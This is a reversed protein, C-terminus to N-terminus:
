APAEAAPTCVVGHLIRMAYTGLPFVVDRVGSRWTALAVRYARHFARLRAVITGRKESDRAALRPNRGALPEATTAVTSTDLALVGDRGLFGRGAAALREKAARVLHRVRTTLREAVRQKGLHALSAPITCQLEVVDPLRTKAAFYVNPRKAVLRHELTSTILGPWQEPSDVLGATVPNAIVYAMKDLVDDADGLVVVSPETAAWFNETRALLAKMCCAVHRDLWHLFRPLHAAPDSLVLHVHNSMAVFAHVEVGTRRAAEALCYALVVNTQDHPVLLFARHACRRTVLYTSGPLLQRPPSVPDLRTWPEHWGGPAHFHRNGKPM